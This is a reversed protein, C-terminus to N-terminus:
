NIFSTSIEVFGAFWGLNTNTIYIFRVHNIHYCLNPSYWYTWLSIDCYYRSDRHRTCIDACAWGPAFSACGNHFVLITDAGKLNSALYTIDWSWVQNPGDAMYPAPKKTPAPRAARGRHQLQDTERLICYFSSESALYIGRDALAPVIQKPAQSKFEDCNCVDIIADREQQSLKNMPIKQVTKRRDNMGAARWNQLTRSSIGVVECARQQRAGCYIAIQLSEIAM